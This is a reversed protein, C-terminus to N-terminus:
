WECVETALFVDVTAIQSTCQLMKYVAHLQNAVVQINTGNDSCITKPKGRRAIYRRLAALIADPSLSTFVEIHVAESVFCVIITIYGKTVTKSRPPGLRRSIPGTYDVGITLYPRSPQIRTSPLEGM